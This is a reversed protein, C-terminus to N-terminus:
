IQSQSFGLARLSAPILALIASEEAGVIMNRGAWFGLSRGFRMPHALREIAGPLLWFPYLDCGEELEALHDDVSWRLSKTAQRTASASILWSWLTARAAQSWIGAATQRDDDDRTTLAAAPALRGGSKEASTWVAFGDFTRSFPERLQMSHLKVAEEVQLQVSHSNYVRLWHAM